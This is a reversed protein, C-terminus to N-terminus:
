WVCSYLKCKHFEALAHSTILNSPFAGSSTIVSCQNCRATLAWWAAWRFNTIPILIWLIGICGGTQCHSYYCSQELSKEITGDATSELTSELTQDSSHEWDDSMLQHDTILTDTIIPLLENSEWADVLRVTPIIVLNSKISTSEPISEITNEPTNDITIEQLTLARKLERVWWVDVSWLDDCMLKDSLSSRGFNMPNRQIWCCDSPTLPFLLIASIIRLWRQPPFKHFQRAEGIVKIQLAVLIPALWPNSIHLHQNIQYRLLM